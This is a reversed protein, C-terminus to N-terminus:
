ISNKNLLQLTFYIQLALHVNFRNIGESLDIGCLDEIRSIRYRLGTISLHLDRATNVLNGGNDLYSKLSVILNSQNTKEHEILRGIVRTCFSLFEQHDVGRIFMMIPELQEFMAVVNKESFSLGIFDTILYSDEYSKGLETHTTASRGTGIFIQSQAFSRKIIKMFRTEVNETELTHGDENILQAHKDSLIIMIRDKNVFANLFPYNKKILNLALGAENLQPSQIKICVVRISTNLDIGLQSIRKKLEQEDYNGQILEEFLDTMTKWNWKNISQQFYLYTRIVSVCREIIMQNQRTLPVKGVIVMRGLRQNSAKLEFSQCCFQSTSREGKNRWVQYNEKDLDSLWVADYLCEKIVKEIVISRQLIKSLHHILDHLSKGELMIDTLENNVIESRAMLQNIEQKEKYLADLESALSEAQYFRLDNYYNTEDGDITVAEFYCHEDGKAKCQKEKVVIKKGYAKTLFGSAYGVLTYCVPENSKGFHRIHEEAEYSNKWYGRSYFKGENVELVEPEVTVIGELTALVPGSNIYEILSEWQFMERLAEGDNFGNSWGYRMLFSKTREMGLTSVLDRRLVGMAEASILLMRKKDLTITGTRRNIDILNEFLLRSAKAKRGVIEESKFDLM